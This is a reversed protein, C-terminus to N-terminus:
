PKADSDSTTRQKCLSDAISAGKFYADSTDTIFTRLDVNCATQASAVSGPDAVNVHKDVEKTCKQVDSIVLTKLEIFSKSKKCHESFKSKYDETAFKEAVGCYEKQYNAFIRDNDMAFSFQTAVLLIFLALLKTM